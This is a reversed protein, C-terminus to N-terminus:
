KEPTIMIHANYKGPFMLWPHSSENPALSLGTKEQTAYPIYVVYRYKANEVNGTEEDFYGNKGYYIHLAAPSKPLAMKGSAAEKERTAEIEERSKGEARLERGRQMMPELSKHYCVVQFGDQSPDDAICVYENTGERLVMFEGAENYGYVKAEERGEAPAAMVACTIQQDPSLEQNNPLHLVSAETSDADKQELIENKKYSPKACSTCFLVIALFFVSLKM